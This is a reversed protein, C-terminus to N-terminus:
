IETVAHALCQQQYRLIRHILYFAVANLSNVNEHHSALDVYLNSLLYSNLLTIFILFLFVFSGSLSQKPPSSPTHCQKQEPWYSVKRLHRCKIQTMPPSSWSATTDLHLILSIELLLILLCSLQSASVSQQTQPVLLQGSHRSCSPFHPFRIWILLVQLDQCLSYIQIRIATPLLQFAKDFTHHLKMFGKWFDCSALTHLPCSSVRPLSTPLSSWLEPLLHHGPCHRYYFNTPNLICKPPSCGLLSASPNSTLPSLFLILFSM